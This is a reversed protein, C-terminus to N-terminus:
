YDTRFQICRPVLVEDVVGEGLIEELQYKVQRRLTELGPEGGGLKEPDSQGIITRIRDKILADRETLFSEIKEKLEGKIAIHITVDYLYSRGNQKNPAKFDVVKLEVIKKTGGKGAPGAGHGAAKGSHGEGGGQSEGEATVLDAGKASAPGSGVFKFGAFLVVAELVMVVGLVAPTSKLLGSGGGKKKEEASSGASAPRAGAAAAGQSGKDEAKKEAKEAM